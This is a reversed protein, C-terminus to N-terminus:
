HIFPLRALPHCQLLSISFKPQSLSTPNFLAKPKKQLSSNPTPIQLTPKVIPRGSSALEAPQLCKESAM